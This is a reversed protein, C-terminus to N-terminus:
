EKGDMHVVMSLKVDDEVYCCNSHYRPHRALQGFFGYGKTADGLPTRSLKWEIKELVRDWISQLKFSAGLHLGLYNMPLTSFKCGFINAFSLVSPVNGITVLESKALNVKLRSTVEFCLLLARLAHIHNHSAGYFVLSDDAFLLHTMELTGIRADRSCLWIYIWREGFHFTYLPYVFNSGLAVDGLGCGPVGSKIHSELCENVILVYDLIQRGVVFANELKFHDEGIGMSLRNALIKSLIKYMGSVLSIPCFDKIEVVRPKKPILAIFTANPNKEFNGQEHFEHFFSMIDDKVVEWCAKFLAITFEDSPAKDDVM